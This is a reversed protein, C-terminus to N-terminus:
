IKDNKEGKQISRRHLEKRTNHLNKSYEGNTLLDKRITSLEAQKVLHKGIKEREDDSYIVSKYYRPLAIKQGDQLQLYFRNKLDARHWRVSRETIYNKGLGKSMLSFENIRDDREHIKKRRPKNIYKLTYAVSAETIEGIHVYGIIKKDLSWSLEITELKANFLIIHYHPRNTKSGYEGVAYYKIKEKNIKRLRKLWKQVDEKCLTAFNNKTKPTNEPAYTLTVFYASCSVKLEQMLRFAWGSIRTKNCEYCKGCPLDMMKTKHEMQFPSVCVGM